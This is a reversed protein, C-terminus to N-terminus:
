AGESQRKLTLHYHIRLFPLRWLWLTHDARADESSGPYVEILEQLARLYRAWIRGDPHHVTFYFGADGFERGESWISLRGEADVEPRLLVVANGNPLPFVVQVAPRGLGPPTAIGERAM